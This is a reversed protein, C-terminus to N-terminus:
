WPMVSVNLGLVCAMGLIALLIPMGAVGMFKGLEM